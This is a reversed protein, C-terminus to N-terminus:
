IISSLYIKMDHSDALLWNNLTSQIVINEFSKLTFTKSVTQEAYANRSWVRKFLYNSTIQEGGSKVWIIPAVLKRENSSCCLRAPRKGSVIFMICIIKVIGIAVASDTWQKEVSLLTLVNKHFVIPLSLRFANAIIDMFLFATWSISLKLSFINSYITDIFFLLASNVKLFYNSKNM